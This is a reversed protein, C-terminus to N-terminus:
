KQTMNKIESNLHTLRADFWNLCQKFLFIFYFSEYECPWLKNELLTIFENLIVPITNVYWYNSRLCNDSYHSLKSSSIKIFLLRFLNILCKSNILLFSLYTETKGIFYHCECDYNVLYSWQHRRGAQRLLKKIKNLTILLFNILHTLSGTREYFGVFM